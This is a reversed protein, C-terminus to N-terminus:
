SIPDWNQYFALRHRETAGPDLGMVTRVGVTSARLLPLDTCVRRTVETMKVSLDIM